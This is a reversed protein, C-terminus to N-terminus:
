SDPPKAIHPVKSLIFNNVFWKPRGTTTPAEQQIFFLLQLTAPRSQANPEPTVLATIQLSVMLSPPEMKAPQIDKHILRVRRFNLDGLAQRIASAGRLRRGQITGLTAERFFMTDLREINSTLILLFLDVFKEGKQMTIRFFKRRPHKQPSPMLRRDPSIQFTKVQALVPHWSVRRRASPRPGGPLEADGPSVDGIAGEGSSTLAL